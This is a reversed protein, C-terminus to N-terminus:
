DLVIALCLVIIYVFVHGENKIFHPKKIGLGTHQFIDVTIKDINKRKFNINVV